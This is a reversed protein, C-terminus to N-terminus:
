GTALGPNTPEDAWWTRCEACLFETGAAAATRLDFTSGCYACSPAEGSLLARALYRFSHVDVPKELLHAGVERARRTLGDDAGGTILVMPMSWGWSRALELVALGSPGPIRDDAVVLSPTESVAMMVGLQAGLAAGNRSLTVSCGEDRLVSALSARVLDDDEAVIVHPHIPLTM